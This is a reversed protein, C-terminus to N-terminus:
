YTGGDINLESWAGDKRVYQKTDIPAEFIPESLAVPSYGASDILDNVITASGQYITQKSGEHTYEVEMIVSVSPQGALLDEIEATNFNVIGVMSSFGIMGSDTVSLTEATGTTRYIDWSYDGSKSVSYVRNTNSIGSSVLSDVIEGESADISLSNTTLTGNSIAFSGFKPNPSISIRKTISDISSISIAPEPSSVFSDSFAVPSLKQKIYHVEKSSVGGANIRTISIGTTPRLGSGDCSPLARAGNNNFVIKLTRKNILTVVVGGASVISPLSNILTNASTSTADYPIEVSDGEFTYIFSGDTPGGDIIGFAVRLESDPHFAVEKMYQGSLDSKIWHIEFTVSDGQKISPLVSSGFSNWSPLLSNTESNIWLNILSESM